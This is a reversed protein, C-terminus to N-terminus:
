LEIYCIAIHPFNLQLPKTLTESLGRIFTRALAKNEDLKISWLFLLM